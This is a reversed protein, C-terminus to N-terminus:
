QRGELHAARQTSGARDDDIALQLGHQRLLGRAPAPSSRLTM